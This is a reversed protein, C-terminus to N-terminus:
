GGYVPHNEQMQLLLDELRQNLEQIKKKNQSLLSPNELAEKTLQAKEGRTRYFALSTDIDSDASWEFFYRIEKTDQDFLIFLYKEDALQYLSGNLNENGEYGIYPDDYMPDIESRKEVDSVEVNYVFTEVPADMGYTSFVKEIGEMDIDDFEYIDMAKELTLLDENKEKKFSHTGFYVSCGIIGLIGVGIGIKTWLSLGGKSQEEDVSEPIDEKPEDQIDDFEKRWDM